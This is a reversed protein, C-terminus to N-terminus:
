GVTNGPELVGSIFGYKLAEDTGFYNPYSVLNNISEESLSSGGELANRYLADDREFQTIVAEYEMHAYRHAKVNGQLSLNYTLSSEHLYFITDPFAIRREVPVSTLIYMGMSGVNVNPIMWVERSTALAHISNRIVVGPAMEGGNTTLSICIPVDRTNNRIDLVNQVFHTAADKCITGTLFLVNGAEFARQYQALNM